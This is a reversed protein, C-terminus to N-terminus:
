HRVLFRLEVYLPLFEAPAVQGHSESDAAHAHSQVALHPGDGSARCSFGEAESPNLQVEHKHTYPHFHTDEGLARYVEASDATGMVYRGTVDLPAVQQWKAWGLPNGGGVYPVLAGHPVCAGDVEAQLFRVCVTKSRAAVLGMSGTFSEQVVAHRHELPAVSLDSHAYPPEKGGSVWNAGTSGPDGSTWDHVHNFDHNHNADGVAKLASGDRRVCIYRERLDPSGDTGDCLRWKKPIEQGIYGVIVGEPVRFLMRNLSLALLERAPPSNPADGTLIPTQNQSGVPHAHSPNAGVLKNDLVRVDPSTGDVLMEHKHAFTHAHTGVGGVAWEGNGVRLLRGDWAAPVDNACRTMRPGPPGALFLVTGRPTACGAVATGLVILYVLIWINSAMAETVVRHASM